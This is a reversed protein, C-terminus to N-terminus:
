HYGLKESGMGEGFSRMGELINYIYKSLLYFGPEM